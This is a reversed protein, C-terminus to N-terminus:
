LKGCLNWWGGFFFFILTLGQVTSMIGVSPKVVNFLFSYNGAKNICGMFDAEQEDANSQLSMNPELHSRVNKWM